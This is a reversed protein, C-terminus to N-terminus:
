TGVLRHWVYVFESFSIGKLGSTGPGGQLWLILPDRSPVGRSEMFLYFLKVGFNKDATLYGAYTNSKMRGIGPLYDVKDAVRKTRCSFQLNDNVIANYRM